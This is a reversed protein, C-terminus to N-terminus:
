LDDMILIETTTLNEFEVVFFFFSLIIILAQTTKLIYFISRKARESENRDRKYISETERM